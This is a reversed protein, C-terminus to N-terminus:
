PEVGNLRCCLPVIPSSDFFDCIVVNIKEHGPWRAIGLMAKGQGGRTLYELDFPPTTVSGRNALDIGIVEQNATVTWSLVFLHGPKQAALKAKQDEEVQSWVARNAYSGGFAENADFAFPAHDTHGQFFVIVRSKSGTLIDALRTKLLASESQANNSDDKRYINEKGLETLITASLKKWVESTADNLGQWNCFELVILEHEHGPEEIFARIQRLMDRTKPGLLAHHFYFDSGDYATRMDLWRIGGELQGQIDLRQTKAWPKTINLGLGALWEATSREPSKRDSLDYAGSDHTGPLAIQALTRDVFARFNRTMWNDYRRAVAPGGIEASPLAADGGTVQVCRALELSAYYVDRRKDITARAPRLESQLVPQLEPFEGSWDVSALLNPCLKGTASKYRQKSEAALKPAPPFHVTVDIAGREENSLDRLTGPQHDLYRVSEQVDVVLKFSAAVQEGNLVEVYYACIRKGEEPALRDDWQDICTFDGAGAVARAIERGSSDDRRIRVSYGSDRSVAPDLRICLKTAASLPAAPALALVAALWIRRIPPLMM